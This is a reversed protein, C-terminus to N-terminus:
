PQAGRDLERYLWAKGLRWERKVTDISVGLTRATEDITLGGFCRLEIVRSQFPDLVALRTLADDLALVAVDRTSTVAISSDLQQTRGAGRKAAGHRRRASPCHSLLHRRRERRRM